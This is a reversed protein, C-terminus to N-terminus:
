NRKQQVAYFDKRIFLTEGYAKTTAPIIKGGKISWNFDVGALVFGQAELFDRLDSFSGNGKYLEVFYTQLYIVKVENLNSYSRLLSLEEGQLHLCLFDINSLNMDSLFQEITTTEVEIESFLVHPFIELHRYPMKLSSANSPKNDVESLYFTSLGNENSLAKNTLQVNGLHSLEQICKFLLQPNPEFTFIEGNPWSSAFKKAETGDYTGGEFIIPEEGVIPKIMEIVQETTGNLKLPLIRAEANALAFFSLFLLTLTSKM